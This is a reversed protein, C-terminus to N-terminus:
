TKSENAKKRFGISKKNFIFGDEVPVVLPFIRNVREQNTRLFDYYTLLQYLNFNVGNVPKERFLVELYKDFTWMDSDLQYETANNFIM